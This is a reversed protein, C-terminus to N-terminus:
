RQPREGGSECLGALWGLLEQTYLPSIGEITRADDLTPHHRTGPLRVVTVDRNGSHEAARQWAAISPEIPAWEDEEGYFLLVPCRVAAFIPEPDFDMDPWSGADPLERPVYALSFWPREAFRQVVQEASARELHGRLFAEYSQRLEDLDVLASEDFGAERLHFATGYHMQVAPSVGVAAVLVLFSVEASLAAALAAAWAGQSFGWLGIPLEEPGVAARLAQMAAHADAAQRQLPVDGVSPRRDYRLVAVGRAPLLDALQRFLFQDRSPDNSPHLPILGACPSGLPPAALLAHFERGDDSRFALESM